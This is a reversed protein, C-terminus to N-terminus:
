YTYIFFPSQDGMERVEEDSKGETKWEEEGQVRRRNITKFYAWMTAYILTSMGVLALTM